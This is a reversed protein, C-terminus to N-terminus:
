FRSKGVKMGFIDIDFLLEFAPSKNFTQWTTQVGGSIMFPIRFLYFDSLLSFGFSKFNETYNHFVPVALSYFNGTGKAFDYFIGSRIRKLYLLGSINFDPYVLPMVYDISCFDLKESYINFYSRPFSARNSQLLKEFNQRDREYRLRIGHNSLIGPFYLATLLSTINGLIKKDFPAFTYNLDVIQAWKPYIDRFASRYYNSLYLRGSFQTQGYDYINKEKIYVYRNHYSSSFSPRLYQSFRGPSFSLPISVTNTFRLGSKIELPDAVDKQPKYFPREGYDLQSEFVPYWGKWSISSHLQHRKDSYEYGFSSILTSLQNQTMLTFGPSVSTPDAQIKNLDAYFPMWSHFNFLNQWKRYPQPKYDTLAIDSVRSAITDFRNTLFSRPLNDTKPINNTEELDTICINNGSSTYDTFLAMRGNIQLDYAGFRSRTLQAIKKDPSLIFINDTGSLSSVFFLSDNRFFSSQLDDRGAEILTKWIQTSLSYLMIGEGKDTLFIVSLETGDDSWQPRQPYANGPFPVSNLIIGNYADILVLNNKNDLTNEAAAIIKGDPSLSVSMYRSKWTLQRITKNNIEMLKIVSYSRNEWRPDPQTEIWALKGSASSLFYPYMEGPIHITKESKSSPKILVFSPPDSLSTKVAIVSDAGVFVPSYYNVYRNGKPPNLTEYTSAGSRVEDESWLIKLSDFTETFLNKKTLSANRSLSINVPNITFPENATYNLVENWLQPDYKAYTWAIMQYGFQYHDPTYNRFSGNIMKDYNYIKGKEISIAKLQKLFSPNRGRGSQTLVSEAFVADGEMFWFPLLFTNVGTFQEGLLVSMVKSFGKNFSAMQLVHTLEHVALQENPDLPITNQEPTPFIEMRKPAWAVYGNSQTTYNHIIVPIKFKMEPYLATLKSYANDLSKAFELGGKGYSEPYIIRFHSTKIQNWKLSSPDQGTEFYQAFSSSSHLLFYIFLITLLYRM